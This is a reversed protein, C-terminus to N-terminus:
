STAGSAAVCNAWFSISERPAALRIQIQIRSGSCSTIAQWDVTTYGGATVTSHGTFLRRQRGDNNELIQWDYRRAGASVNHIVFPASLLAQQSYLQTPIQQPSAFSLATYSAGSGALGAARLASRGVGTQAIGIAALVVAVLAIASWWGRSM